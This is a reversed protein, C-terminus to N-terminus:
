PAKEAKDPRPVVMRGLSPWDSEQSDPKLASFLFSGSSTQLGEVRVTFGHGSLSNRHYLITRAGAEKQAKNEPSRKFEILWM